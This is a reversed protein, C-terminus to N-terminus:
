DKKEYYDILEKLFTVTKIPARGISTEGSLLFGGVGKKVFNYICDIEALEPLKGRKMSNLIHTAIIIEKDSGLQKIRNILKEQYIPAKKIGSEPVLDGRGIVVGDLNFIFEDIKEIGKPTEIKGWIIPKYHEDKENLYKKIQLIDEEREVFSQCIIEVRKDIAFDLSEKDKNSLNTKDRSFEKINCGKGCRVIGGKEVKVLIGEKRKGIVKFKMTDDKMSMETFSSKRLEEDRINLPIIKKEGKKLSYGINRYNNEGCFIVEEGNYVKYIYPLKDSIRIKSGSLDIMIHVHRDITKIYKYLKDFESVSGHSFNFRFVDVGLLILEKLIEHENISPGTTAIVKM